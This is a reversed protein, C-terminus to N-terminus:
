LFAFSFLLSSSKFFFLTHLSLLACLLFHVAATRYLFYWGKVPIDGRAPAASAKMSSGTCSSRRSRLSTSSRSLSASGRTSAPEAHRHRVFLRRRLLRHRRPARAARLLVQVAPNRGSRPRSSNETM